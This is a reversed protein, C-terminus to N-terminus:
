RRLWLTPMLGNWCRTTVTPSHRWPFQFHGPSRGRHRDDSGLWPPVLRECGRRRERCQGSPTSPTRSRSNRQLYSSDAAMEAPRTMAGNQQSISVIIDDEGYGNTTSPFQFLDPLLALLAVAGLIADLTTAADCRGIMQQLMAGLWQDLAPESTSRPSPSNTTKCIGFRKACSIPSPCITKPKAPGFVGCPWPWPPEDPHPDSDFNPADGSQPAWPPHISLELEGPVWRMRPYHVCLELMPPRAGRATRRAPCRRVGTRGRSRFVANDVAAATAHTLPAAHGGGHAVCGGNRESIRTRRRRTAAEAATRRKSTHTAQGTLTATRRAHRPM